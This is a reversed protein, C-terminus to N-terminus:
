NYASSRTGGRKPLIPQTSNLISGIRVPISLPAFAQSHPITTTSNLDAAFNAARVAAQVELATPLPPPPILVLPTIIINSAQSPTTSTSSSASRSLTTSTSSSSPSITTVVSTTDVDKKKVAFMFLVHYVFCLFVDSM